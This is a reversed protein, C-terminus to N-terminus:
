VVVGVMDCPARSFVAGVGVRGSEGKNGPWGVCECVCVCVCM